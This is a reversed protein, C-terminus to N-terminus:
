SGERTQQITLHFETGDDLRLVLGPHQSLHNAEDYSVCETVQSHRDDALIPTGYENTFSEIQERLAEVIQEERSM